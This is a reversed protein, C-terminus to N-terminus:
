CPSVIVEYNPSIFMFREQGSDEEIYEFGATFKWTNKSIVKLNYGDFTNCLNKCHEWAKLKDRSPKSYVDFISHYNSNIYRPFNAIAQRSQYSM